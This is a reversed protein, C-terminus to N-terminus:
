FHNPLNTPINQSFTKSYPVRHGTELIVFPYEVATIYLRNVYYSRHIQIFDKSLIKALATQSKQVVIYKGDITYIKTNTHNGELILLEDLSYEVTGENIGKLAIKKM